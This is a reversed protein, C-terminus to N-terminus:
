EKVVKTMQSGKGDTLKFIYMGSPLVSLMGNIHREADAPTVFGGWVMKGDAGILMASVAQRVDWGSVNLKFEGKVPNPYVSLRREGNTAEVFIVNSLEASNDNDVTRLRYYVGGAQGADLYAYRRIVSSNGIAKTSGITVFEQGNISRQIEFRNANRESATTWQLQVGSTTTAGSFQALSVPLPAAEYGPTFDSFHRAVVYLKRLDSGADANMYVDGNRLRTWPSSADPRTYIAMRGVACSGCGGVNDNDGFWTLELEVGATPQTTVNTVEWRTRASSNGSLGPSNGPSIAEVVGAIRLVTLSSGLSQTYNRMKVGMGGFDITSTPLSVDRVSEMRGRVYRANTENTVVGTTGLSFKSAGTNLFGDATFNIAGSVNIDQDSFSVNGVRSQTINKVSSPNSDFSGAPFAMSSGNTGFVLETGSAGGNTVLTGSSRAISTGNFTLVRSSVNLKGATLTLVGNITLNRDAVISSLPSGTHNITLNHLDTTNSAPLMENGLTVTASATPNYTYNYIVGPVFVPASSITGVARSIDIVDGATVGLNLNFGGTALTGAGLGLSNRVTTNGLLTATGTGSKVVNLYSLGPLSQAGSSALTVTNDAVSLTGTWTTTGGIYLDRNGM